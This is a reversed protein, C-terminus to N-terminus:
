TKDKSDLAVKEDVYKQIRIYWLLFGTVSLLLGAIISVVGMIRYSTLAEQLVNLVAIRDDSPQQSELIDIYLKQKKVDIATLMLDNDHNKPGSKIKAEESKLSDYLSKLHDVRLKGKKVEAETDAVKLKYEIGKDWPYAVGWGLIILGAIAIFKYLSDTPPTIM